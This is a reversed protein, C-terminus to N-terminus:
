DGISRGVAEWYDWSPEKPGLSKRNKGLAESRFKATSAPDARPNAALGATFFQGHRHMEASMGQPLGKITLPAVRPGLGRWGGRHDRSRGAGADRERHGNLSGMLPEVVTVEFGPWPRRVSNWLDILPGMILTSDAEAVPRDPSSEDAAPTGLARIPYTELPLSEPVGIRFVHQPIVLDAGEANLRWRRLM